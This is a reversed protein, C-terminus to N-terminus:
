RRSNVTIAAQEAVDESVKVDGKVTAVIEEVKNSFWEKLENTMKKNNINISLKNQLKKKHSTRLSLFM